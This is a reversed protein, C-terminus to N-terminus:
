NKVPALAVTYKKLFTEPHLLLKSQRLSEIGLDQEYNVYKVGQKHLDVVTSHKLFDYLGPHSKLAKEFHGIAYEGQTEYISYAVMVDDVYIGLARLNFHHAQEVLREIALLENTTEDVSKESEERWKHFTEVIEKAEKEDLNLKKIVARNEHTRLFKNIGHRKSAYKKGELESFNLALVIYDHSDRDEEILFKSRDKILDIVHEPILHLAPTLDNEGAYGLLSIITDDVNTEGIFSLFAKDSTYDRFRVVLNDDLNSLLMDSRVDWSYMSIFNFDSYPPFKAIM